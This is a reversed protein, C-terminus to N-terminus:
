LLAHASNEAMKFNENYCFQQLLGTRPPHSNSLGPWKRACIFIQPAAGMPASIYYESFYSKPHTLM